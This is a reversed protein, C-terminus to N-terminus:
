KNNQAKWQSIWSQSKQKPLVFIRIIGDHIAKGQLVKEMMMSKGIKILGMGSEKPFEMFCEVKDVTYEQQTDWPPNEELVVSLHDLLTTSLSFEAILDTQSTLPYLLIAPFILDSHPNLPDALHYSAIEGLNPPKSTSIITIERSQTLSTEFFTVKLAIKLARSADRKMAERRKTEQNRSEVIEQRVSIEAQLKNFAMNNPDIRLARTIADLGEELKDLALCAKSSRYLAKM